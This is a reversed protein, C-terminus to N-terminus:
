GKSISRITRAMGGEDTEAADVVVNIIYKKMQNDYNSSQVKVNSQSNNIINIVPAAAGSGNQGQNQSIGKAMRSYVEDTLPFVAEDNGAEGILGMTPATVLGGTAFTEKGGGGLLGGFLMNAIKSAAVQAVMQTITNRFVKGLSRLSDKASTTGDAMASFVGQIGSAIQTSGTAVMEATSMHAKQWLDYYAQASKSRDNWAQTDKAAQSQLLGTLSGMDGRKIARQVSKEYADREADERKQVAELYAATYWDNAEKLAEYDTKTAQIEKLKAERQKDLSQVTEEFEAQAVSAYDGKLEANLKAMETNFKLRRQTLAEMAKAAEEIKWQKLLDEAHSTDIDKSTNKIKRIQDQWKQAKTNMDSISKEFETGTDSIIAKDLDKELGKLDKRANAIDKARQEAQKRVDSVSLAKGTETTGAFETLSIVGVINGGFAERYDQDYHQSVRDSGAAAYYGSANADLMIVHDGNNTIVADGAHAEYGNGYADTPHFASGANAAWDPAM